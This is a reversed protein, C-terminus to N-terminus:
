DTRARSLFPIFTAFIMPGTKKIATGQLNTGMNNNIQVFMTPLMCNQVCNQTKEGNINTYLNTIILRIVIIIIRIM